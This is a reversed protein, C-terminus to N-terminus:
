QEGRLRRIENESVKNFDGVKIFKIKGLEKWKYLCTRDVGLLKAAKTINYLRDLEKEKM